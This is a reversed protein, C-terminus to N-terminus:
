SQTVSLSRVMSQDKAADMPSLIRYTGPDLNIQLSATKGPEVTPVQKDGGPGEIQFGHVATGDNIVEFTTNGAPVSAPIQIAGETLHVQITQAAPGKQQPHGGCATLIPLAALAATLVIRGAATKASSKTFTKM